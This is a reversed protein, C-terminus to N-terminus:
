VTWYQFVSTLFYPLLPHLQAWSVTTLLAPEGLGQRRSARQYLSHRLRGRVPDTQAQLFFGSAYFLQVFTHLNRHASGRRGWHRGSEPGRLAWSPFLSTDLACPPPFPPAGVLEECCASFRFGKRCSCVKWSGGEGSPMSGQGEHM